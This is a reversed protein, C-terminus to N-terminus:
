ELVVLKQSDTPLDKAAYKIKSVTEAEVGFDASISKILDESAERLVVVRPELKQVLKTVSDSGEGGCEILAIDIPSLKEIQADSLDAVTAPIHVVAVGQSEIRYCVRDEVSVGEITTANVEYEGPRDFVKQSESSKYVETGGDLLVVDAKVSDKPDVVISITKTQIKYTESKGTSLLEIM